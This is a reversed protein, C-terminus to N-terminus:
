VGRRQEKDSIITAIRGIVYESLEDRLDLGLTSSLTGEEPGLSYNMQSRHLIMDFRSERHVCTPDCIPTLRLVASMQSKPLQPLMRLDEPWASSLTM